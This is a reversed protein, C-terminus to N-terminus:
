KTKGSASPLDDDSSDGVSGSYDLDLSAVRYNNRTNSVTSTELQLNPSQVTHIDPADALPSPSEFPDNIHINNGLPTEKETNQPAGLVRKIAEAKRTSEISSLITLPSKNYNNTKTTNNKQKIIRHGTDPPDPPARRTTPSAM